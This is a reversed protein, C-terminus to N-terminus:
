RCLHNDAMDFAAWAARTGVRREPGVARDAGQDLAPHDDPRDQRRLGQGPLAEALVEEPPFIAPDTRIEENVLPLSEKNANAYWVYNTIDATIQPQM